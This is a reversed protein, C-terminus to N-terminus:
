SNENASQEWFDYDMLRCFFISSCSYVNAAICIQLKEQGHVSLSPLINQIWVHM